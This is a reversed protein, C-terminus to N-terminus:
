NGRQSPLHPFRLTFPDACSFHKVIQERPQVVAASHQLPFFGTQPLTDHLLVM